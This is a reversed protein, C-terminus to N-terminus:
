TTTSVAIVAATATPQALSDGARRATDVAEDEGVFRVGLAGSDLSGEVGVGTLEALRDFGEAGALGVLEEPAGARGHSGFSSAM